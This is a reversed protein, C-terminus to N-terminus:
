SREVEAFALLVQRLRRPDVDVTRHAARFLQTTLEVIRADDLRLIWRAVKSRRKPVRELPSPRKPRPRNPMRRALQSM